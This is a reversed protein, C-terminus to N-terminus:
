SENYFAICDGSNLEGSAIALAIYVSLVNTKSLWYSLKATNTLSATKGLRPFGLGIILFAVAFAPHKNYTLFFTPYYIIDLFTIYSIKSLNM